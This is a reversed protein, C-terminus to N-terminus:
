TSILRFLYLQVQVFVTCYNVKLTKERKSHVSISRVIHSICRSASKRHLEEHVLLELGLLCGLCDFLRNRQKRM